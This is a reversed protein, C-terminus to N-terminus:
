LVLAQLLIKTVSTDIHKSWLKCGLTVGLLKTVEVQEVDVNNMVINIQPKLSHNTGFVIIKTKYINLVLQNRPVWESVLHLEKNLTATMETETTASTFLTSDDVYM